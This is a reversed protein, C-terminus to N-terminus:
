GEWEVRMCAIRSDNTNEDALEKTAFIPGGRVSAFVGGDHSYINMWGEKKVPAMVLDLDTVAMAITYCGDARYTELTETGSEPDTVLAVLPFDVVECDFCIVRAKCGDRTMVPEGAKAKELDFPKANMPEHEKNDFPPALNEDTNIAPEYALQGRADQYWYGVHLIDMDPYLIGMDPYLLTAPDARLIFPYGHLEPSDSISYFDREVVVGDAKRFTISGHDGTATVTEMNM